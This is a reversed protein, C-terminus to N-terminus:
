RPVTRILIQGIGGDVQLDIRDTATQYDPSTYTRDQREYGSPVQVQGIGTQVRIRAAVGEPIEIITQGIGGRVQGSVQGRDPLIVTTKGVGVNVDLRTVQLDTLDLESAGVGTNVKLRIPLDPSLQLDWGRHEGEISGFPPITQRDKLELRATGGELRFTQAVEEGANIRATGSVLLDSGAPGSELFLGGMNLDISVEAAAAGSLPQSIRQETLGAPGRATFLALGAGLALLVIAAAILSGFPSRRGLLLEAGLAILLVPWLRWITDWVGWDIIQLNNLLLMLGLAILTIPGVLSRRSQRPEEM